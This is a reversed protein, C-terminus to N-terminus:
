GTRYLDRGLPRLSPADASGLFVFAMTICGFVFSM